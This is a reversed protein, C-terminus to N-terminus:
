RYNSTWIWKENLTLTYMRSILKLQAFCLSSSSLLDYWFIRMINMQCQMEYFWELQMSNFRGIIIINLKSSSYKLFDSGLTFFLLLFWSNIWWVILYATKNWNMGNWNMCDFVLESEKEDNKKKWLCLMVYLYYVSQMAINQEIFM